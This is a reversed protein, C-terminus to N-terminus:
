CCVRTIHWQSAPFNTPSVWGSTSDKQRLCKWKQTPGRVTSGRGRGWRGLAEGMNATDRKHCTEYDTAGMKVKKRKNMGPTGM